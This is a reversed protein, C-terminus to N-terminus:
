PAGFAQVNQVHFAEGNSFTGDFRLYRADVPAFTDTQRGRWAGHRRDALRVWHEGDMSAEVVYHAYPAAHRYWRPDEFDLFAPLDYRLSGIRVPAEWRIVGTQGQGPAVLNRAGKAPRPGDLLYHLTRRYLERFLGNQSQQLINPFNEGCVMALRLNRHVALGIRHLPTPDYADVGFEREEPAARDSRILIDWAQPEYAYDVEGGWPGPVEQGLKLDLGRVIPHVTNAIVAKSG